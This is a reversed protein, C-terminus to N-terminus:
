VFNLMYLAGQFLVSQVENFKHKTLSHTFFTMENDGVSIAMIPEFQQYSLQYLPHSYNNLHYHDDPRQNSEPEASNNKECTLDNSVFKNFLTYCKILELMICHRNMICQKSNMTINREWM